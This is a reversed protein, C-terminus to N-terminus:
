FKINTLMNLSNILQDLENDPIYRIGHLDSCMEANKTKIILVRTMAYCHYLYGIEFFVNPRPQKYEKQEKDEKKVYVVDDASCIAVATLCEKAQAIIADLITEGGIINRKDLTLPNYGNDSLTQCVKDKLEENHGYVVFVNKSATKILEKLEKEDEKNISKKNIVKNVVKSERFFINEKQFDQLLKIKKDQGDVTTTKEKVKVYVSPRVLKVAVKESTATQFDFKGFGEPVKYRKLKKPFAKNRNIKPQGANFLSNIKSVLVDQKM